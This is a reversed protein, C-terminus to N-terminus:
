KPKLSGRRDRGFPASTLAFLVFFGAVVVALSIFGLKTGVIMAAAFCYSSATSALGSVSNNIGLAAGPGYRSTESLQAFYINQSPFSFSDAFAFVIVGVMLISLSPLFAYLLLAGVLLAGGILLTVRAQFRSLLFNTITPGIYISVMGYVFVIQSVQEETMGAASGELPLFYYVFANCVLYPVIMFVFYSFIRRSFVFRFFGMRRREVTHIHRIKPMCDKHFIFFIYVLLALAIGSAALYVSSYGFAMGIATGIIIGCNSGSNLAVNSMSFGREVDNPDSHMAVFTDGANLLLGAGFGVVSKAFVFFGLSTSWAACLEGAFLLLTGAIVLPYLGVRESLKGGLMAAASLFFFTVSYALAVGMEMPIGLAQTYLQRAFFPTIILAFSDLLYVLFILPRVADVDVVRKEKRPVRKGLLQVFFTIEKTLLLVVLVVIAVNIAIGRLLANTEERFARRDIGMELMGAVEGDSTLIPTITYTYEGTYDQINPFSVQQRREYAIEFETDHYPYDVPYLAGWQDESSYVYCVRGDVVRLVMRYIGNDWGTSHDLFEMTEADYLTDQVGSGAVPALTKRLEQYAPSDYDELTNIEMLLDGDISMATLSAQGALSDLTMDSIAANMSGSYQTMAVVAVVVVVLVLMASSILREAGMSAYARRLFYGVVALAVLAIVLLALWWCWMLVRVGLPYAFSSPLLEAEGRGWLLMDYRSSLAVSGDRAAAVGYYTTPYEEVTMGNSLAAALAYGDQDVVYLERTGIDSIYLQGDQLCLAYPISFAPEAPPDPYPMREHEGDEKATFIGGLKDIFYVEQSVPDCIATLVRNEANEFPYEKLLEPQAGKAAADLRFLYLGEGQKEVYYLLSGAAELGLFGSTYEPMEGEEYTVSYVTRLRRGSASHEDIAAYEILNVDSFRYRTVYVNGKEGPTISRVSASGFGVDGRYQGDQSFAIMRNGGNDVAFFTGQGGQAFFSFNSGVLHSDWPQKGAFGLHTMVFVALAVMALVAAIIGARRKHSSIANDKGIM